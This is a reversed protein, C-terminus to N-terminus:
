QMDDFDIDGFEDFEPDSVSVINLETATCSVGSMLQGQANILAYPKGRFTSSPNGFNVSVVKEQKLAEVVKDVTEQLELPLKVSQIQARATRVDMIICDKEETRQKTDPDVKYRIRVGDVVVNPNRKGIIATQNLVLDRLSITAMKM